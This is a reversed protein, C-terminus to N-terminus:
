IAETVQGYLIENLESMSPTREVAKVEIRDGVRGKAELAMVLISHVINKAKLIVMAILEFELGGPFCFSLLDKDKLPLQKEPPYVFLVQPELNPEVRSQNQYGLASRLKGSGESKRVVYQSQLAQIDCNPHLGVVVMSEFLKTPEKWSKHDMYQLHFNAAWQRKQSTLIEPNYNTYKIDPPRSFGKIMKTVQYQLRQLQSGGHDNKSSYVVSPRPSNMAAAVARAVDETTQMFFSAGWSPSGSDEEKTIGAM